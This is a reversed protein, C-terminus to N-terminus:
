IIKILVLEFKPFINEAAPAEDEKGKVLSVPVFETSWYETHYKEVSVEM